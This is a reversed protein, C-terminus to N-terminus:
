FIIGRKRRGEGERFIKRRKMRRINDMKERKKKRTRQPGFIREGFIMGRKRREKEEGGYVLYKGVGFIKKRKWINDVKGETSWINEEKEKEFYKRRKRRQKEEGRHVM